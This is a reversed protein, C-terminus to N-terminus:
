RTVASPGLLLSGGWFFKMVAAVIDTGACLRASVAARWLAHRGQDRAAKLTARCKDPPTFAVPPRALIYAMNLPASITSLM